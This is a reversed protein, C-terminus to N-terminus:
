KALIGSELSFIQFTGKGFTKADGVVLARGYDQLTQAVIESASASARNTLVILPGDWAMKSDFNRLKQVEGTHDKVSVVVGNQIFLGTVSVAQTLHGGANNRLDLIIGKLNQEKKLSKFPKIYIMARLAIPTKTFPFSTFFGWLEMEMLSM